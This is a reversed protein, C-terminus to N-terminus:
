GKKKRVRLYRGQVDVIEVLDGRRLAANNIEQVPYKVIEGAEVLVEGTTGPESDITVRASQGILDSDSFTIPATQHRYVWQLLAAAARAIGFGVLLAAFLIALLHWGSLVGTLGVAGFAAMFVALVSCGLGTAASDIDLGLLADLGSGELVSDVGLDLGEGFVGLILLLLYTLGALLIGGFLLEM